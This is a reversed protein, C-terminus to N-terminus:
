RATWACAADVLGEVSHPDAEVVSYGAEAAATASIPGICVADPPVPGGAIDVYRRVTSESTFTAVDARRARELIDPDVHPAVNRYATVVDVKWGAARLGDPLVPRAVEARPVLVRGGPPPAPFVGLLAEAVARDPVLEVALGAELTGAALDSLEAAADDVGVHHALDRAALRLLVRRYEVRMADLAEHDPLTAVPREDAPDAGVARLLGARVAYAAPRTCGLAPDTLERWQDPHRCLHDGLAESAGLVSLLRMAFGEDDLLDELLADAGADKELASDRLRVLQQLALDPDATRALIWLLEEGQEGLEGVDDFAREPDTFGLRLLTGKTTRNERTM